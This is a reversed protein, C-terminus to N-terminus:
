RRRSTPWRSRTPTGTSSADFTIATHLADRLTVPQSLIYGPAIEEGPQYWVGWEDLVLKTHHQPDFKAMAAWHAQIVDELAYAKSSCRRVLRARQLGRGAHSQQPLGHLLAALLRRGATTAPAHSRLLRHDLWPGHRRSHGRPGTAVLYPPCTSRSSRSSSATCRRTDGPTMDGGCGWSENGVGWYNVRFADADGNAAREDALSGTGAPANCYSVWDHFERPTGSGVNAALYPDAGILRCLHMFEHVGFQNSETADLGAPM